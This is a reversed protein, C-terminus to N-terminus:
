ININKVQTFDVMDGYQKTKEWFKNMMKLHLDCWDIYWEALKGKTIGEHYICGCPFVLDVREIKPLM